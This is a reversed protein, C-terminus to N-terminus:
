SMLADQTKADYGKKNLYEQLSMPERTTNAKADNYYERYAEILAKAQAGASGQATKYYKLSAKEGYSTEVDVSGLQNSGVVTASEGSERAAADINFTGAAWKEAAFGAEQAKNRATGAASNMSAKLDTIADTVSAVYESSLVAAYKAGAVDVVYDWGDKFKQADLNSYWAVVKEKASAATDKAAQAVEGAKEKASQVTEGTKEKAAQMASDAKEKAACACLSTSLVIVLTMSVIKKFM